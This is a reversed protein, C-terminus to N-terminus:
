CATSKYSRNYPAKQKKKNKIMKMYINSNYNVM